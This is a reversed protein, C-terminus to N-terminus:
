ASTSSPFFSPHWNPYFKGKVIRHHQILLWLWHGSQPIELADIAVWGLRLASPHSCCSQREGEFTGFEGDGGVDSVSIAEGLSKLPRQCPRADSWRPKNLM